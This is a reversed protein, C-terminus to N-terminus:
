ITLEPLITVDNFMRRNQFRANYFNIEFIWKFSQTDINGFNNTKYEIFNM